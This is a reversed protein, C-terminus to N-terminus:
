NFGKFNNAKLWENYKDLRGEKGRLWQVHDSNNLDIEEFPLEGNNGPQSGPTSVRGMANEEKLKAEAKAKAESKFYASNEYVEFPDKGLEEAAKLVDDWVLEVEPNAKFYLNKMVPSIVSPAQSNPQETGGSNVPPKDTKEEEAKTLEELRKRMNGLDAGIKDGEKITKVVSALDKFDKKAGLNLAKLVTEQAEEDLSEILATLEASDNPSDGPQNSNDEGAM